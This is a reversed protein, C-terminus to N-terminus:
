KVYSLGFLNKSKYLGTKVENCIKVNEKLYICKEIDLYNVVNTIEYNSDNVTKYFLDVLKFNYLSDMEIENICERKKKESVIKYYNKKNKIYVLYYNKISDIKYITGKVNISNDFNVIEKKAKYEEKTKCSFFILFIFFYFYKMM